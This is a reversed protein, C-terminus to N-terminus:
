NRRAAAPNMLPQLLDHRALIGVLKGDRVVPLRKLHGELMIRAATALDDDPAVTRVPSTMMERADRAASKHVWGTDRGLLQDRLLGLHRRRGDAREYAEKSILDAESVIGVLQGDPDVVPLGSIDYDLLLNVIEHYKATPRVTLVGRTMVDGVLVSRARIQATPTASPTDRNPTM